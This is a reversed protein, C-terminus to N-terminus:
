GEADLPAAFIWRHGELDLARYSRTGYPQDEPSAVITAGASRARAHHADVDDVWCYVQGHVAPLERPSTMGGAKWASALMLVSGGFAMEAHGIQGDPMAYREREEFGFARALFDLAAPADHYTLYPIIRQQGAPPNQAM